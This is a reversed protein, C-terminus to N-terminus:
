NNSNQLYLHNIFSINTNDNNISLFIANNNKIVIVTTKNIKLLLITKVFDNLISDIIQSIQNKIDKMANNRIERINLKFKM